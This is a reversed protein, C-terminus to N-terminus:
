HGNEVRALIEGPGDEASIGDLMSMGPQGAPVSCGLQMYFQNRERRTPLQDQAWESQYGLGLGREMVTHGYIFYAGDIFAQRVPQLAPADFEDVLKQGFSNMETGVNLPLDLEQALMVVDYLKQLKVSRVDPDAIDWNRDPVINLAAAGKGVLLGLLEDM